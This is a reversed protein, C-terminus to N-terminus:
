EEFPRCPKLAENFFEIMKASTRPHVFTTMHGEDPVVELHAKVGAQQLATVFRESGVLPVIFDEEGHIVEIPPDSRSIHAAPSASQYVDPVERQSGGLLFSMSWDDRPFFRFDTPPGGACVARISPLRKWRVDDRVWNTTQSVVDPSEDALLAVLIGLHGGASYGFIGLRNVDLNFAVRNDQIWVLAERVDDVQAPYKFTPAHRYNMSVAVFGHDALCTGYNLTLWKDGAVWGGGHVVLVVPYGEKPATTKPVYVDCYSARGEATGYRFESKRFSDLRKMAPRDVDEASLLGGLLFLLFAPLFTRHIM